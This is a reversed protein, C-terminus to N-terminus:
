LQHSTAWVQGFRDESHEVFYQQSFAVPAKLQAVNATATERNREVQVHGFHLAIERDREITYANEHLPARNTVYYITHLRPDGDERKCDYAIRDYLGPYECVLRQDSKFGLQRIEGGRRLENCADVVFQPTILPPVNPDCEQSHDSTDDDAVVMVELSTPQAAYQNAFSDALKTALLKFEIEANDREMNLALVWEQGSPRFLIVSYAFGGFSGWEAGENEVLCVSGFEEHLPEPLTRRWSDAFMIDHPACKHAFHIYEHYCGHKPPPSALPDRIFADVGVPALIVVFAAAVIIIAVLLKRFM